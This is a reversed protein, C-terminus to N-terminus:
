KKIGDDQEGCFSIIEVLEEHVENIDARGTENRSALFKYFREEEEANNFVATIAEFMANMREAEPLKKNDLRAVSRLFAADYKLGEPVHFVFGRSTTGEIM